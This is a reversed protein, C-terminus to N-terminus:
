AGKRAISLSSLVRDEDSMDGVLRRVPEPREKILTPAALLQNVSALDPQQYIDIVELDYRGPLYEECIGRVRSIARASRTSSGGVFLKLVYHAQSARRAADEYEALDELHGSM